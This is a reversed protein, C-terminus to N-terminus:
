PQLMQNEISSVQEQLARVVNEAPEFKAELDARIREHEEVQSTYRSAEQRFPTAKAKERDQSAWSKRKTIEEDLRAVEHQAESLQEIVEDYEAVLERDECTQRLDMRAQNARKRIAAIVGAVSSSRRCPKKTSPRQWRSRKSEDTKAPLFRYFADLVVLRYRGPELKMLDSALRNIDQLRGRVNAVFVHGDVDTLEIGRANMVKPIRNATTESHLENDIILVVVLETNGEIKVSHKSVILRLRNHLGLVQRAKVIVLDLILHLGM